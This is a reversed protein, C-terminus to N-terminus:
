GKVGTIKQIFLVVTTGIVFGGTISLLENQVGALGFQYYFALLFGISLTVLGYDLKELFSKLRNDLYGQRLGPLIALFFSLAIVTLAPDLGLSSIFSGFADLIGVSM